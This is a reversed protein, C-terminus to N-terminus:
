RSATFIVAQSKGEIPGDGFREALAESARLTAGELGAPDRAVIENRLPTGQCYAVAAHRPLGCRTVHEVTEVQVDSFGAEMLERRIHDADHYGYPTRALFRPPDHPFMQALAGAVVDAFENESIGGWVSFLFHGSRRLVRHAEKFGQRKDPFFMVGFQCIVVDFSEDEMPLALADAQKWEMRTDRSLGLRAVELMADNLDTVVLRALSPLVSAMARTVVGTGAATELIDRPELRKVREAMDQAYSEFILPVLHREYTEPISGTFAKDTAAM